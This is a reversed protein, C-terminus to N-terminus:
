NMMERYISAIKKLIEGEDNIRVKEACDKGCVFDRNLHSNLALSGYKKRNKVTNRVRWADLGSSCGKHCVSCNQNSWVIGMDPKEKNIPYFFKFIGGGVVRFPYEKQDSETITVVNKEENEVLYMIDTIYDSAYGEQGELEKEWIFKVNKKKFKM